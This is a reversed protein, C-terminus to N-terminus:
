VGLIERMRVVVDKGTAGKEAEKVADKARRQYEERMREVDRRTEAAQQLTKAWGQWEGPALTPNDKMQFLDQMLLMEFRGQSAEVLSGAGQKRVVECFAQAMHSAQRVKQFRELHKIRHRRISTLNVHHGREALWAQLHRLLTAPNEMLREYEDRLPGSAGLIMDIKM